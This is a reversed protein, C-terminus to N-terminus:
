FPAGLVVSVEALASVLRDASARRNMLDMYRHTQERIWRARPERRRVFAGLGADISAAEGHGEALGTEGLLEALVVADEIALSGGQTLVPSCAHAADGILVARGRRWEARDVEEAGGFHLDNGLLGIAERAPGGFDEFARALHDHWQSPALRPPPGVTRLQAAIYFVNGGLPMLAVYRNEDMMVTSTDVVPVSVSGRWYAQGTYRPPPSPAFCTERVSSHIGDAGVVIDYSGDSGDSFDVLLGPGDSGRESIRLPRVGLRTPVEGAAERLIRQLRPRHIAVSTGIGQWSEGPSEAVLEGTKRLTRVREVAAGAERVADALGLAALARLGNPYLTIGAGVTKSDRDREVIECAIGRRSLAAGLTLGAIGGGVILIM